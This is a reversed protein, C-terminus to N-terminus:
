DEFKLIMQASPKLHVPEGNFLFYEEGTYKDPDARMKQKCAATSPFTEGTFNLTEKTSGEREGEPTEVLYLKM